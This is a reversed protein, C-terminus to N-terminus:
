GTYLRILQDKSLSPFDEGIGIWWKDDVQVLVLQRSLFGDSELGQGNSGSVTYVIDLSVMQQIILDGVGFEELAQNMATIEDASRYDESMIEYTIYIDSGYKKYLSAQLSVLEEDYFGAYLHYIKYESIDIDAQNVMIVAAAKVLSPEILDMIGTGEFHEIARVYDNVATIYEKESFLSEKKEEAQEEQLPIEEASPNYGHEKEDAPPADDADTNDDDPRVFEKLPIYFKVELDGMLMTGDNGNFFLMRKPINNIYIFSSDLYGDVRHVERGVTDFFRCESLNGQDDYQVEYRSFRWKLLIPEENVGYFARGIENGREDYTFKEVAYGDQNLTLRGDTGYYRIEENRGHRRTICYKHYTGYPNVPQGDAGYFEQGIVYGYSDNIYIIKAVGSTPEAQLMDNCDYLADSVVNGMEDYRVEKRVLQNGEGDLYIRDTERNYVDYRQIVSQYIDGNEDYFISETCNGNRDYDMVLRAYTEKGSSIIRLSAGSEDYCRREIKLNHNDYVSVAVAVREATNVERSLQGDANYYSTKTPLGYNNYESIFYGTKKNQSNYFIRQIMNGYADFESVSRSSLNDGNYDVTEVEYGRGDYRHVRHLGGAYDTRMFLSNGQYGYEQMFRLEDLLYYRIIEERGMDDYQVEQSSFGSNNAPTGDHNLWNTLIRHGREDYKMTVKSYSGKRYTPQRYDDYYSDSLINGANDYELIRLAYGDTCLAPQGMTGTLHIEHINNSKDYVFEQMHYGEKGLIPEEEVGFYSETEQLDDENYTLKMVAYGNNSFILKGDPGYHSIKELNGKADYEYHVHCSGDVSLNLQGDEGYYFEDEVLGQVNYQKIRKAYHEPTLIPSNNTDLYTSDVDRGMDDPIINIKHFQYPGRVPQEDANFYAVSILFGRNDYGRVEQAYGHETIVLNEEENYFSIKYLNENASNYEYAVVAYQMSNNILGGDAGYYEIRSVHGANNYSFCKGAIGYKNIDPNGTTDLYIIKELRGLSDYEYCEGGIGIENVASLRDVAYMRRHLFGEADFELNYRSINTRIPLSNENNETPLTLWRADDKSIIIDLYTLDPAYSYTYLQRGTEDLYTITNIKGDDLYSYIATAIQESHNESADLSVLGASNVHEMRIEHKYRTTTIAYIENRVERQAKMLRNIGEPKGFRMVYDAYYVTHPVFYYFCLTFLLCCFAALVGFKVQRRIRDRRVLMDFDTGLVGSLIKLFATRKKLKTVDTIFQRNSLQKINGPMTDMNGDLLIPLIDDSRCSDIFHQVELEVWKYKEEDAGVPSCVVILKRSVDLAEYVTGELSGARLDTEDRFIKLGTRGESRNIRIGKPIRYSELRHQLKAARKKDLHSYSIFADYRYQQSDIHTNM